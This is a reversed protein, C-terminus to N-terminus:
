VIHRRYTLSLRTGSANPEAPIGHHYSSDCDGYMIIMDGHSLQIELPPCDRLRKGTTQDLKHLLFTRTAGFSVGVITPRDGLQPIYAGDRHPYMNSTPAYTNVVVCNPHWTEEFTFSIYRGIFTLTHTMPHMPKPTGKYDYTVGEHGFRAMKHGPDYYPGCAGFARQTTWQKSTENVIDTAWEDAVVTSVWGKVLAVAGPVIIQAAPPLIIM